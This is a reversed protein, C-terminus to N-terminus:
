NHPLSKYVSHYTDFTKGTLLDAFLRAEAELFYEGLKRDVSDRLDGAYTDGPHPTIEGLYSGNAGSLFDVRLFPVPSGLSLREAYPIVDRPVTTGEMMEYRNNITVEKFNSDYTAYRSRGGVGTGREIEIFIGAFGYFMYIKMDRALQGRDDLVAQEVIWRTKDLETGLERSAEKLTPYTDQSKVSFLSGDEKILFVGRSNAGATPKIITGPRLKLQNTPVNKAFTEPTPVGLRRAFELDAQKDNGGPAINYDIQKLRKKVRMMNAMSSRFSVGIDHKIGDMVFHQKIDKYSLVSYLSSLSQGKQEEDLSSDRQIKRILRWIEHLSNQHGALAAQIADEEHMM